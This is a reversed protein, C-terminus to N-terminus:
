CNQYLFSRSPGGPSWVCDVHKICLHSMVPTVLCGFLSGLDPRVNLESVDIQLKTLRPLNVAFLPPHRDNDEDLEFKCEVLNPCQSLWDHCARQSVFCLHLHELLELPVKLTSPPMNTQLSRLQPAVEFADVVFESFQWIRLEELIPLAGKALSLKRLPGCPPIAFFSASKWRMSHRIMVDFCSDVDEDWNTLAASFEITLPCTGLRSLVTRALEVKSKANSSNVRLFLSSWLSPMSIAVARWYSCVQGLIFPARTADELDDDSCCWKFVESFMEPLIRRAPALLSEHGNIYQDVAKKKDCLLEMIGQLRASEDALLQQVSKAKVVAQRISDAELKSPSHNTSLLHPAPSPRTLRDLNLPTCNQCLATSTCSSM